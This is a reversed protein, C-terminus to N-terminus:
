GKPKPKFKPAAPVPKGAKDLLPLGQRLREANVLLAAPLKKSMVSVYWSDCGLCPLRRNVYRGHLIIWVVAAFLM